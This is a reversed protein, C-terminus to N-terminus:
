FKASFGATFTQAQEATDENRGKTYSLTFAFNSTKDFYYSLSSDFLDLHKVSGNFGYLLTETVSLVIHPGTAPTSLAFGFKTGARHFSEHSAATKPDDGKNTYAGLDDRL